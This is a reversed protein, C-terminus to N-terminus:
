PIISRCIRYRPCSLTTLELRISDHQFALIIAAVVCGCHAVSGPLTRPAGDKGHKGYFKSASSCRDEEGSLMNYMYLMDAKSITIKIM